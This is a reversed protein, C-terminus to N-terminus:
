LRLVMRSVPFGQRLVPGSVRDHGPFGQRSRFCAWGHVIRELNEQVELEERFCLLNLIIAKVYYLCCLFQFFKGVTNFLVFRTENCRKEKVYISILYVARFKVFYM